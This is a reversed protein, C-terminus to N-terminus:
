IIDKRREMSETNETNKKKRFVLRQSVKGSELQKVEHTVFEYNEYFRKEDTALPEVDSKPPAEALSRAHWIGHYQNIAKNRETWAEQYAEYLEEYALLLQGYSLAYNNLIKQMQNVTLKNM